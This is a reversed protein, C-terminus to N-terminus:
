ECKCRKQCGKWYYVGCNKCAIEMDEMYKKFVNISRKGFHPMEALLFREKDKTIIDKMDM